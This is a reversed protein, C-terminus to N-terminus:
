WTSSVKVQDVIPIHHDLSGVTSSGLDPVEVLLRLGDSGSVVILWPVNLASSSCVVHLDPWGIWSPELHELIFIVLEDIWGVVFSNWNISGLINFSLSNDNVSVLLSSILSPFNDIKVLGFWDPGFSEIFLKSEMDVPREINSWSEWHLSNSLAMTSVIDPKLSPSLISISLLPIEILNCLCEFVVVPFWVWKINLTVTSWGVDSTSGGVWSPPLQKFVL